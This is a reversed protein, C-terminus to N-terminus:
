ESCFTLESLATKRIRNQITVAHQIVLAEKKPKAYLM